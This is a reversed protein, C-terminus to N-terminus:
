LRHAAAEPWSNVGITVAPRLSPPGNRAVTVFIWPEAGTSAVTGASRAHAALSPPGSSGYPGLSGILENASKTFQTEPCTPLASLRPTGRAARCLSSTCHADTKTRHARGVTVTM